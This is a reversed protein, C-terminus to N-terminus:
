YYYTADSYNNRRTREQMKYGLLVAMLPGETDFFFCLGCQVSHTVIVVAPYVLFMDEGDWTGWTGWTWFVPSHVQPRNFARCWVLHVNWAFEPIPMRYWRLAQRTPLIQNKLTERSERSFLPELSAKKREEQTSFGIGWFLKPCTVWKEPDPAARLTTDVLLVGPLKSVGRCAESPNPTWRLLHISM